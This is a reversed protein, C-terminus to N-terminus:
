GHIALFQELAAQNSGAGLWSNQEEFMKKADALLDDGSGKVVYETGIELFHSIQSGDAGNLMGIQVERQAKFYDLLRRMEKVNRYYEVGRPNNDSNFGVHAM